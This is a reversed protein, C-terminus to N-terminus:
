QVLGQRSQRLLSACVGRSIAASVAADYGFSHRRLGLALYESYKLHVHASCFAAGKLFAFVWSIKWFKMFFSTLNLHFMEWKKLHKGSGQTWITRWLKQNNYAAYTCTGFWWCQKERERKKKKIKFYNIIILKEKFVKQFCQMETKQLYVKETANCQNDFM